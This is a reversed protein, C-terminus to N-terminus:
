ENAADRTAEVALDITVEDGAVLGGTDLAKSWSVGFEQRDIIIPEFELGARTNGWPDQITGLLKFPLEVAKSVGRITLLGHAVYGDGSEEIRDSVFTIEPYTESALFDESRLHADRKDNGTDISATKISVEVKSNAVNEPDTTITGSFDDFGGRVKGIVMHSVVFGVKSHATDIVYRDTAAASATVAAALPAVGLIKNVNM